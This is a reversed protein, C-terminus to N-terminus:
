NCWKGPTWGGSTDIYLRCYFTDVGSVYNFQFNGWGLASNINYNARNWNSDARGTSASASYCLVCAYHATPPSPINAYNCHNGYGSANIGGWESYAWFGVSPNSWSNYCALVSDDPIDSWEVFARNGSVVLFTSPLPKTTPVKSREIEPLGLSCRRAEPLTLVHPKTGALLVKECAIFAQPRAAAAATTALPGFGYVGVAVSAAIILRALASRFRSM